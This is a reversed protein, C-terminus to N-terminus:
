CLLWKVSRQCCGDGAFVAGDDGSCVVHSHIPGELRRREIVSLKIYELVLLALATCYTMVDAFPYTISPDYAGSLVM